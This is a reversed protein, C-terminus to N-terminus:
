SEDDSKRQALSDEDSEGTKLASAGYNSANSEVVLPAERETPEAGKTGDGVAEDYLTEPRTDDSMRLTM